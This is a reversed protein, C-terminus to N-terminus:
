GSFIFRDQLGEHLTFSPRKPFVFIADVRALFRHSNNPAALPLIVTEEEWSEDTHKAAYAHNNLHFSSKQDLELYVYEHM